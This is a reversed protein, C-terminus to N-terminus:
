AREHDIHVTPPPQQRDGVPPHRETTIPRTDVGRHKVEARPLQGVTRQCHLATAQCEHEVPPQQQAGCEVPGHRVDRAGDVEDVQVTTREVQVPGERELIRHLFTRVEEVLRTEEVQAAHEVRVLHRRHRRVHVAFCGAVALTVTTTPPGHQVVAAVREHPHLGEVLTGLRGRLDDGILPQRPDAVQRAVSVVQRRTGAAALAQEFRDAHRHGSRIRLGTLEAHHRPRM